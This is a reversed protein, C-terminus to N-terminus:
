PQYASLSSNKQGHDSIKGVLERQAASLLLPLLMEVIPIILGSWLLVGSTGGIIKILAIIDSIKKKM